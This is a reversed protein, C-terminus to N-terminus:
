TRDHHCFVRRRHAETKAAHSCHILISVNICPSHQAAKASKAASSPSRRPDAGGCLSAHGEMGSGNPSAPSKQPRPAGNACCRVCARPRWISVPAARSARAQRQCYRLVRRGTVFWKTSTRGEHWSQGSYLPSRSHFNQRRPTCTVWQQSLARAGCEHQLIAPRIPRRQTRRM